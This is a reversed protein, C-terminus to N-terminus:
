VALEGREHDLGVPWKVHIEIAFRQNFTTKFEFRMWM